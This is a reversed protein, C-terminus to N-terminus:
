SPPRHAQQDGSARPHEPLGDGGGGGPEAVSDDREGADLEVDGIGIV